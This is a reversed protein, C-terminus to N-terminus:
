PKHLIAPILCSSSSPKPLLQPTAELANKAASNVQDDLLRPKVSGAM